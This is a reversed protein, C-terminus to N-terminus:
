KLLGRLREIESEQEAVKAKLAALEADQQRRYGTRASHMREKIGGNAIFENELTILHRNLMADTMYCLTMAINAMEEESWKEFYPSYCELRNNKRCFEQMKCYRSHEKTWLVLRRTVIYDRYDERLEQLSSRAVNLLKIQMEASTVGDECGEIINQKGSRAAQVMQDVTRDGYSSLFRRCFTYTLQYIVDAKQYFFADRWPRQRKLIQFGEGHM